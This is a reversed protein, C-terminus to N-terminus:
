GAGGFLYGLAALLLALGVIPLLLWFLAAKWGAGLSRGGRRACRTCVAWVSAGGETLVCCDGCVPRGCRACPGAALAGCHVCHEFGGGDDSSQLLTV